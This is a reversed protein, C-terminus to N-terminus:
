ARGSGRDVVLACVLRIPFVCMCVRLVCLMTFEENGM